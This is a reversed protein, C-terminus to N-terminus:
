SYRDPETLRLDFGAPEGTALRAVIQGTIPALSLGMMAHGCALVLNSVKRSRGLYPLGDPSCPRLGVWPKIGAFLEPRYQPYYDPLAKLIGQVRRPAISEDIGAVEMTGGVRLAGRMPTLAVRAETLISCMRPLVPPNPHTLSYGKGAQMPLQIGLSKALGTSWIGGCLVYEDAAFDGKSTMLRTIKGTSLEGRTVETDWVFQVGMAELRAQLLPVLRHPALHADLPFYVAGEVTIELEPERTKLDERTLVEAPIGLTQAQEAMHAEEHLGRATKCLMLLGNKTLGFDGLEGALQEYRERSACNLDRLLPASREVHKRTCSRWFRWSWSILDWSCRPRLYFPSEPNWMWKLGLSVMGPAALPVFHSPVIMGANGYSCGDRQAPQREVLTVRWGNNRCYYAASLGIIGGGVILVHRSM